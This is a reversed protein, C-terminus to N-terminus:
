PKTTSAPNTSKVLEGLQRLVFQRQEFLWPDGPAQELLQEIHRLAGGYAGVAVDLQIRHRLLHSADSSQQEWAGLLQRTLDHDGLELAFKFYAGCEAASLGGVELARRVQRLCAVRASLADHVDNAALEFQSKAALFRALKAAKPLMTPSDAALQFLGAQTRLLPMSKAGEGPHRQELVIGGMLPLWAEPHHRWSSKIKEVAATPDSLFPILLSRLADAGELLGKQICPLQPSRVAAAAGSPSSNGQLPVAAGTLFREVPMNRIGGDDILATIDLSNAATALSQLGAGLQLSLEPTAENTLAALRARAEAIRGQLALSTAELFGASPDDPYLVKFVRIHTELEQHRGLLLELGLSHRHAGHHYPDLRLTRRFHELAQPTSEALLASAFDQDAGTLGAAQAERVHEIGRKFTSKEFLEHEGLRLLVAGGESGLDSRQVLRKLEAEARAPQSLVTWAEARQMGLHVTDSYGAAAAEDWHRLAERWQGSRAALEASRLATIQQAADRELLSLRTVSVAISAVALIVIGLFVYFAHRQSWKQLRLMLGPKRAQVPRVELFARLDNALETMTPYRDDKEHAMAKECVAALDRVIGRGLSRLPAPPGQLILGRLESRAPLSGDARAYPPRGALLEYLMVGM